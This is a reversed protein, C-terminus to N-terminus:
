KLGLAIKEEPTLKALARERLKEQTNNTYDDFSDFLTLTKKHISRYMNNKGNAVIDAAMQNTFCGIIKSDRDYSEEVIWYEVTKM